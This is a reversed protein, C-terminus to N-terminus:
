LKEVNICVICLCNYSLVLIMATISAGAFPKRKGVAFTADVVAIIMKKQYLEEGRLEWIHNEYIKIVKYTFLKM